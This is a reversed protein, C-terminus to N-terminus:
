LAAQRPVNRPSHCSSSPSPSVNLSLSLSLRSGGKSVVQPARGRTTAAAAATAVTASIPSVVVAWRSRCGGGLDGDEGAAMVAAPVGETLPWGGEEGAVGRGKFRALTAKPIERGAATVDAVLVSLEDDGAGEGETEFATVGLGVGTGDVGDPLVVM